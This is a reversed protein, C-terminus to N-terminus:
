ARRRRAVVGLAGLGAALLAISSPEPVVQTSRGTFEFYDFAVADNSNGRSLTLSLFGDLNAQAVQANTLAYGHTSVATAGVSQDIMGLFSIGNMSSGFPNFTSAQLGYARFNFSGALLTGSFNWVMTYSTALPSFLASYGDTQEAGNIASQEGASRGDTYIGPIGFSQGDCSTATQAGFLSGFCDKDGILQAQASSAIFTVAAAAFLRFRM